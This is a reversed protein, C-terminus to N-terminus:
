HERHIIFGNEVKQMGVKPYYEMATPVSLLLVMCQEGVKEKTLHLLRRGIGSKKYAPHVALDALYCCWVWDTVSRAVGVLERDNWASIVLDSNMYMRTMREVDQIPRPLGSREYLEIVQAATPVVDTSYTIQQM